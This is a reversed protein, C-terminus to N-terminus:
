CDKACSGCGGDAIRSNKQRALSGLLEALEAAILPKGLHGDMGAELCRQREAKLVHASLAIIPVPASGAAQEAARIRRTAELGDMRPMQVDMFIVDYSGTAAHAVAEEGDAAVEVQCGHRGLLLGCVRQNVPNDEVLLVSLEHQRHENESPGRQPDASVLGWTRELASRLSDQRVPKSLSGAILGDSSEAAASDRASSLLLVPSALWSPHERLSRALELGGMGPMQQDVLAVDWHRVDLHDLLTLARPGSRVEHVKCGWGELTRRLLARRTRNGDALLVRRDRISPREKVARLDSTEALDMALTVSFTSGQGPESTVGLSGGMLESLQRCISLGLGTGGFHRTTSEDAQAFADFIADQRQPPIGIGTDRVSFRVIVTDGAMRERSVSLVVEGRETFKIGNSGLNTLVQRLRVPDGKVVRPLEPGVDVVLELGKRQAQHVLLEGVDELTQRLDVPVSEITMGGAEIKSVDLIDNLICLLTEASSRVTGLMDSQTDDLPTDGLLEVMGLIGNMPTRIEHSMNALFAAKAQATQLAEERARLLEVRAQERAMALALLEGVRGLLEFRAAGRNPFPDTYLFLVGHVVGDAVAPVIYHGHAAMGEFRHEHRADAFCDDSIIIEGSEAARGCLCAGLPVRQERALFEDTYSGHHAFMELEGADSNLSFFGVKDQWAAGAMSAVTSVVNQIRDQLPRDEAMLRAVVARMEAAELSHAEEEEQAVVETIDRQVSVFGTIEGQEGLMPTITASSWWTESGEAVVRRNLFRGTWSHGEALAERLETYTERPTEGSALIKPNRGVVAELTLGTLLSFGRNVSVIRCDRDTVVVAEPIADLIAQSRAFPENRFSQEM